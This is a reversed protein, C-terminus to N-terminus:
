GYAVGPYTIEGLDRRMPAPVGVRWCVIRYGTVDTQRRM